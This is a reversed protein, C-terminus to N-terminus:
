FGPPHALDHTRWIKCSLPQSFFLAVFHAFGEWYEILSGELMRYNM